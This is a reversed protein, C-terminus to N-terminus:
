MSLGTGVPNAWRKGAIDPASGPAPACMSPFRGGPDSNGSTALGMGGQAAAGLATIIDASLTDTVILDFRAPDNVLYLCAADVHVYDTSVSPHDAAVAEFTRQWLDGAYTLVNTKHCLTLRGRRSEARQLAYRIVREVGMRTNIS